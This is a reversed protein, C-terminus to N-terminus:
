RREWWVYWGGGDPGMESEISSHMEGRTGNQSVACVAFDFPGEEVLEEHVITVRLPTHPPIDQRLFHWGTEGHVRYYVEYYAVPEEFSNEFPEDWCLVLTTDSHVVGSAHNNDAGTAALPNSETGNTCRFLLVVCFLLLCLASKPRIGIFM